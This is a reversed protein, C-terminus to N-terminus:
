ILLGQVLAGKQDILYERRLVTLFSEPSQLATSLVETKRLAVYLAASYAQCNISRRPNFEIDTFGCYDLLERGLDDNKSLANIYLWDYFYTRPLLPFNVGFFRFGVLNGSERLRIDKKAARSTGSFLDTYPGGGEFVKSGQFASEVSVRNGKKETVFHLNFASLQVGLESDSKSSIELIPAVRKEAAADHLSSISKRKQSAAVGPFWQFEVNVEDVGAYPKMKPVFVPRLAMM